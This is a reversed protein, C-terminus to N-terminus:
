SRYKCNLFCSCTRVQVPYDPPPHSVGDFEQFFISTVKLPDQDPVPLDAATLISVLRAREKEFHETHDSGEEQQDGLGGKAPTHMIIIMCEKTRRSSRVTMTRWFGQHVKTDYPPLPSTALFEDVIDVLKCVEAPINKCCHPRSVGGAWGTVMFGVAPVKPPETSEAEKSAGEEKAEGEKTADANEGEAKDKESGNKEDFLYRYGFTFESKNRLPTPASILPAM